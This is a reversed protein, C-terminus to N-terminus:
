AEPGRNAAASRSLFRLCRPDLRVEQFIPWQDLNEKKLAGTRLVKPLLKFFEDDKRVLALWGLKLFDDKGSFDAAEAEGKVTEYAGRWKACQWYNIQAITRSIEAQQKDNVVFFSLAEAVSWRAALCHKFALDNLRQGREADDPLERKWLEAAILAFGSEVLDIKEGLYKETVTVADGVNLGERLGESVKAIYIANVVGDNHVILNRRQFLEVLQSEHPVIYGLGLKAKEKLFKLWDSIGQRLINEVRLDILYSRADGITEFRRLDNLSFVNEDAGSPENMSDFFAHLVQSLFWEAASTLNLLSSKNLITARQHARAFAEMAAGFASRKRKAVRLDASKKNGDQKTKIYIRGGLAKEMDSISRGKYDLTPYISQFAALLPILDGARSKITETSREELIPAITNVFDRLSELNWALDSIMRAFKKM